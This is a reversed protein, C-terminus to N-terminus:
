NCVALDIGYITFDNRSDCMTMIFAYHARNPPTEEEDSNDMYYQINKPFYFDKYWVFVWIFRFMFLLRLPLTIMILFKINEPEDKVIEM